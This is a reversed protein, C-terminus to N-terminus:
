IDYNNGGVYSAILEAPTSTTDVLAALLNATHGEQQSVEHNL